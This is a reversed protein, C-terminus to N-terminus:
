RKFLRALWPKRREQEPEQEDSSFDKTTFEDNFDAEKESQTSTSLLYNSQQIARILESNEAQLSEIQRDKIALQEQLLRILDDREASREQKLPESFTERVRDAVFDPVIFRNGSKILREKLGLREIRQMIYPKSRGLEEALQKVTLDDNMTCRKM